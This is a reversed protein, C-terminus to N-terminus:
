KKAPNQQVGTRLRGGSGPLGQSASPRGTSLRPERALIAEFAVLFECIFIKPHLIDVGDNLFLFALVTVEPMAHNGFEQQLFLPILDTIGAMAFFLHPQILGIDMSGQAFPFANEAMIGM